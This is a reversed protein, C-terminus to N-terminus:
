VKKETHQISAVFNHESNDALIACKTHKNGWDGSVYIYDTEKLNTRAFGIDRRIEVLLEGVLKQDELSIKRHTKLKEVLKNAYRIVNDPAYLWIFSYEFFFLDINEGKGERLSKLCLILNRYHERKDKFIRTESESRKDLYYKVFYGGFGGCLLTFLPVVIQIWIQIWEM